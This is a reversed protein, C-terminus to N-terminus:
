GDMEATKARSSSYCLLRKLLRPMRLKGKYDHEVINVCQAAVTNDGKEDDVTSISIAAAKGEFFAQKHEEERNKWYYAVKKHAQKRESTTDLHLKERWRSELEKKGVGQAKMMREQWCFGPDQASEVDMCIWYFHDKRKAEDAAEIHRNLFGKFDDATQVIHQNCGRVDVFEMDQRPDARRMAM